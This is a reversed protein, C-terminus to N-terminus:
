KTHLPYLFDVKVNGRNSKAIIMGNSQISSNTSKKTGNLTNGSYSSDLNNGANNASVRGSKSFIEYEGAFTDNLNLSISGSESELDIYP